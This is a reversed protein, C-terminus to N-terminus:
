AVESGQSWAGGLESYMEALDDLVIAVAAALTAVPLSPMGGATGAVQQTTLPLHIFGVPTVRGAEAFWHHSLFMIANCLYTGAHYSITTPISQERLRRMWRELPMRTRYAEPAGDILRDQSAGSDSMAGGANLAIAELRISPTGPAQGLHVVADFGLALDKYLADELRHFDVPYRRTVLSASPQRTRLLEVLTLWSANSTWEEYPEFATLLVRM